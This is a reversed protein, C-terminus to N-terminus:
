GHALFQVADGLRVTGSTRAVLNQGFVPKNGVLHTRVLGELAGKAREGTTQDTNVIVCRSSPKLAVFRESGITLEGLAEEAYAPLGDTVFNPRFRQMPVPKALTANLAALSSENALLYPFGDAFSVVDHEAARSPDVRRRTHDPMYVLSCARGLGASLLARPGSGLDLADVEDAFVRVRRAKGRTPALPVRVSHGEFALALDDDELATELRALAPEERQTIFRGHDDVVMFRRDHALGRDSLRAEGVAIGRASKVPYVFLGTLKSM